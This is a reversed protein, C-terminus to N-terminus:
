DAYDVHELIGQCSRLFWKKPLPHLVNFLNPGRFNQADPVIQVMGTDFPQSFEEGRTNRFTAHGLIRTAVKNSGNKFQLEARVNVLDVRCAYASAILSGVRPTPAPTIIPEPPTVKLPVPAPTPQTCAILITALIMPSVLHKM